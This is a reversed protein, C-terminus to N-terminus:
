LNCDAINKIFKEKDNKSANSLGKRITVCCQDTFPWFQDCICAM